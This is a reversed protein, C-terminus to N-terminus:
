RWGPNDGGRYRGMSVPTSWQKRSGGGSRATLILFGGAVALVVATGIVVPLTRAALGPIAGTWTRNDIATFLHVPVAYGFLLVAGAFAVLTEGLANVLESREPRTVLGLVLMLLGLAAGGLMTWKGMSDFTALTGIREMPLKFTDVDAAREDRVIPVLQPGTIEIPGPRDGIIVEHATKLIPAIERAGLRNTLVKTELMVELAEQSTDLRRYSLTAITSILDRRIDADELIAAASDVTDDPTFAVRDLWWAGFALAFAVSAILFFTAGLSREM